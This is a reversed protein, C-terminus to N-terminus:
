IGRLINILQDLKTLEFTVRVHPHLNTVKIEGDTLLANKYCAVLAGLFSSDVFEVYSLNIIIQNNGKNIESILYEEISPAIDVTARRATVQIILIGSRIEYTFDM